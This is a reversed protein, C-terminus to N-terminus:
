KLKDLLLPLNSINTEDELVNRKDVTISKITDGEFIM